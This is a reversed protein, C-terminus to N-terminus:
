SWHYKKKKPLIPMPLYQREHDESSAFVPMEVEDPDVLKVRRVYHLQELEAPIPLRECSRLIYGDLMPRSKTRLTKNHVSLFYYSGLFEFAIFGPIGMEKSTKIHNKLNSKHDTILRMQSIGVNDVLAYPCYIDYPQHENRRVNAIHSFECGPYTSKLYNLLELEEMEGPKLM